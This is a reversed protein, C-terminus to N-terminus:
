AADKQQRKRRAIAMGAGALALGAMTTPEPVAESATPAALTPLDVAPELAAVRAQTTTSGIRQSSITVRGGNRFLTALTALTPNSRRVSDPITVGSFAYSFTGAPPFDGDGIYDFAPQNRLVNPLIGQYKTPVAITNLALALTQARSSTRLQALTYSSPV